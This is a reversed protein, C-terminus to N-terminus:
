EPEYYEYKVTYNVFERGVPLYIGTIQNKVYKVIFKSSNHCEYSSFRNIPLVIQQM